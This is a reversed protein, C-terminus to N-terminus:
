EVTVTRTAVGQASWVGYGGEVNSPLSGPSGVFISGDVLSANDYARGRHPLDYYIEGSIAGELSKLRSRAHAVDQGVGVISVWCITFVPTIHM